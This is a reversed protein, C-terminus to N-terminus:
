RERLKAAADKNHAGDLIVWPADAAGTEDEGCAPKYMVDFRCPQKALALGRRIADVSM